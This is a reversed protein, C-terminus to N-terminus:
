APRRASPEPPRSLLALTAEDIETIASEIPLEVMGGSRTAGTVVFSFGQEWRDMVQLGDGRYSVTLVPRYRGPALMNHMSFSFVAARDPGFEGSREHLLASSAAVIPRDDEGFLQLAVAPDSVDERFVVLANVTFPLGQAAVALRDAAYDGLWVDTVQANGDGVRVGGTEDDVSVTPRGFNAEFYHDAIDNPDGIGVVEGRELLMARHCFRSVTQMDHTVLVITRGEDRLRNFVDFCKQQFAADGVALVEDILLIDADVQISVSFALRVHM